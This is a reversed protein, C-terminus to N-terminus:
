NLLLDVDDKSCRGRGLAWSIVSVTKGNGTTRLGSRALNVSNFEPFTNRRKVGTEKPSSLQIGESHVTRRRSYSSSDSPVPLLTGKTWLTHVNQSSSQFASCQGSFCVLHCITLRERYVSLPDCPCPYHFLKYNFATCNKMQHQNIRKFFRFCM